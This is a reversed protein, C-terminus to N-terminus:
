SIRECIPLGILRAKTCLDSVHMGLWHALLKEAQTLSPHFLMIREKRENRKKVTMTAITSILNFPLESFVAWTFLIIDARSDGDKM